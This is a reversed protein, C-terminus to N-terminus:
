FVLVLFMIFYVLAIVMNAATGIIAAALSAFAAKIAKMHHRMQWLEALLIGVFLGLFAGIPPFMLLGVFLGVFGALMSKRTAGGLKAGILGASWDIAVSLLTMGAFVAFHWPQVHTWKDILAYVLTTVFMLPIGPLTPICAMALGIFLVIAAIIEATM